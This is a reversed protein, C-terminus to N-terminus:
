VGQRQLNFEDFNDLKSVEVNLPALKNEISVYSSGSDDRLISITTNLKRVINADEEPKAPLKM